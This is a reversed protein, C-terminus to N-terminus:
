KPKIVRLRAYYVQVQNVADYDSKIELYPILNDAMQKALAKTAMDYLNSGHAPGEMDLKVLAAPYAKSASITEIPLTTRIETVTHVNETPKEIPTDDKTPKEEEVEEAMKKTMSMVDAIFIIGLFIIIITMVM